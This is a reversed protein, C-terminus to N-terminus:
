FGYLAKANGGYIAARREASLFGPMAARPDDFDWHPYDTAFLIRDWGIWEMIDALHQGREPEEMPQTSVWIHDRIYESPRAESAAGRGESAELAQRAALRGRAALRLRM